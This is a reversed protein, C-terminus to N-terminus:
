REHQDGVGKQSDRHHDESRREPVPRLGAGLRRRSSPLQLVPAAGPSVPQPLHHGQACEGVPDELSALDPDWFVALTPPTGLGDGPGEAEPLAIFACSSPNLLVPTAEYVGAGPSVGSWAESEESARDGLTGVCPACVEEQWAGLTPSVQLTYNKWLLLSLQRLVAM